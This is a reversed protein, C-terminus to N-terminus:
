VVSTIIGGKVTVTKGDQSTFTTSTVGYQWAAGSWTAFSAGGIGDSPCAVGAGVFQRLSNIVVSNNVYYSSGPLANFKTSDVQTASLTGCNIAPGSITTYLGNRIVYVTGDANVQVAGSGTNNQMSVGTSNIVVRGGGTRQFTVDGSFNATGATLQSVVVNGAYVVGAAITGAILDQPDSGKSWAGSVNRYLKGDLTNFIIAGNPYSSNPLSPQGAVVVVPRKDSAYKTLDGLSGAALRSSDIAALGIGLRGFMDFDLYPAANVGLKGDFPSLWLGSGLKTADAVTVDIGPTPGVHLVGTTPPATTNEIRNGSADFARSVSQIKFKCYQDTTLNWWQDLKRQDFGAVANGILDWGGIPTGGSNTFQRYVSAAFYELDAPPTWAVEFAGQPIGGNTATHLTVSFGTPQAPVGVQTVTVPHIETTGDPPITAGNSPVVAIQFVRNGAYSRDVWWDYYTHGSAAAAGNRGENKWMSVDSPRSGGEYVWVSFYTTAPDWSSIDVQIHSMNKFTGANSGDDRGNEIVSVSWDTGALPTPPPTSGGGGVVLGNAEVVWNGM